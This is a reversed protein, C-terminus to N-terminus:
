EKDCYLNRNASLFVTGDLLYNLDCGNRSKDRRGDNERRM